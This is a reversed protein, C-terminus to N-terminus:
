SKKRARQTLYNMANYFLNPTTQKFPVSFTEWSGVLLNKKEKAIASVLKEALAEPKMGKEQAVSNKGLVKGDATYSSLTVNTNIFGPTVM